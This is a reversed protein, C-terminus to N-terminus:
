AWSGGELEERSFRPYLLAGRPAGAKAYLDTIRRATADQEGAAAVREALQHAEYKQLLDLETSRQRRAALWLVVVGGLGVGLASGTRIADLQEGGVGTGLLVWVAGAAVLVMVPIGVVVVWRPLPRLVPRPPREIV